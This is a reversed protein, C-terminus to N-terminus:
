GTLHLRPRTASSPLAEAHASSAERFLLDYGIFPAVRLRRVGLERPSANLVRGVDNVAVTM